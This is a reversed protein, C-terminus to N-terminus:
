STAFSIAPTISSQCLMNFHRPKGYHKKLFIELGVKDIPSSYPVIMNAIMEPVSFIERCRKWKLINGDDELRDVFKDITGYEKIMKLAGKPGLASFKNKGPLMGKCRDNYDVGMMICLDRFEDFSMENLELLDTLRTACCTGGSVDIKSLLYPSKYLFVDTDESMVADVDGREALYACLGEAEGDAQLWGLGMLEIFEKAIAAHEKTIPTSQKNLKELVMRVDQEIMSVDRGFEKKPFLDELKKSMDGDIYSEGNMKAVELINYVREIEAIKERAKAADERRRFQEEQKEKPPNPGDFVFIPKIGNKKLVNVFMIFGDLWKTVYRGTIEENTEEDGGSKIFKFLFISVDIAVRWGSLQSFTITQFAQPSMEKFTPYFDSIGM